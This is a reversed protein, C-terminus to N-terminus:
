SRDHKGRWRKGTRDVAYCARVDLLTPKERTLYVTFSMSSKPPIPELGASGVPLLMLDNARPRHSLAGSDTGDASVIGVDELAAPLHGDNYVTVVYGPLLRPSSFPDDRPAALRQSNSVVDGEARSKVRLRLGDKRRDYVFRALNLLLAVTGVVAGYAALANEALWIRVFDSLTVSVRM